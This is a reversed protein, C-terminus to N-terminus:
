KQWKTYSFGEPIEEKNNIAKSIIKKYRRIKVRDLETANPHCREHRIKALRLLERDFAREARREIKRTYANSRGPHVRSMHGGLAQGTPFYEKCDKCYFSAEDNTAESAPEVILKKTIVRRQKRIPQKKPLTSRKRNSRSTM